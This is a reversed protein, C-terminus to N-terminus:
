FTNYPWTWGVNAGADPIADYHPWGHTPPPPLFSFDGSFGFGQDLFSGRFYANRSIKLQRIIEDQSQRTVSFGITGSATIGPTTPTSPITVTTGLSGNFTVSNKNDEEYIAFIQETNTSAWDADWLASVNKWYKKFIEKRGFDVSIVDQFTTVQGDVTQLYGSLRCYKIESGGGNGTFSILRDYQEKCLGIGVYVRNVGPSAIPPPPPAMPKVLDVGNVGIIHTANKYTYDDDVMVNVYNQFRDNLYVPVYGTGEDSDAAAPVIGTIPVNYDGGNQPMFNDSYPFYISIDAEDYGGDNAGLSKTTNIELQKKNALISSSKVKNLFDMFSPDNMKQANLWFENSFNQLSVGWESSLRLFTKSNSLESFSPNILDKLLISEDTYVKSFIAADVLKVNLKNKYLEIFVKSVKDINGVLAKEKETEPLKGKKSQIVNGDPISVNEKKCSVTILCFIFVLLKINQNM